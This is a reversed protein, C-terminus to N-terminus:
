LRVEQRGQYYGIFDDGSHVQDYVASEGYAGFTAFEILAGGVYTLLGAVSEQVPEPFQVDLLAVLDPREILEFAQAKEAYSLRAFPSLHPGNVAFPNVHTAMLNLLCAVPVSLPLPEDSRLYATLAKDLSQVQVPLVDLGPLEIDSDALGTLLATAVPEALEAPFPVLQDLSNVIVDPAGAEIAGPAPTWTGQTRSYEDPGPLAFVTLGNITDRALEALLPRVLGATPVATGTTADAPALLSRALLGGGGAAAGLIGTRALFARRSLTGARVV